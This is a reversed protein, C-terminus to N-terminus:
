NGLKKKMVMREPNPIYMNRRYFEEVSGETSTLLYISNVKKDLLDIELYRLLKSGYGKGQFEHSICVEALYFTTGFSSSKCHGAIFGIAKEPSRLLFGKFKPTYLLDSLREHATDYSWAENWPNRNFVEVYLNVCEDLYDISMPIITENM